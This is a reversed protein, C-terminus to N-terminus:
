RPEAARKYVQFNRVAAGDPGLFEQVVALLSNDGAVVRRAYALRQAGRYAASDLTNEDVHSLSFSDPGADTPPLAIRSGDASGGFRTARDSTDGDMRWVVQVALKGDADRAITYRGATPPVGAAYLSLEPVLLWQGVYNMRNGHADVTM